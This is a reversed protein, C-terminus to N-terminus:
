PAGGSEAAPPPPYVCRFGIDNFWHKPNAAARREPDALDLTKAVWSAGRVVKRTSRENGALRGVELYATAPPLGDVPGTPDTTLPGQALAANRDRDYWDAVWERVNGGLHLVGHERAESKIAVPVPGAELPRRVLPTNRCSDDYVWCGTRPFRATIEWEAETPLRGGDWRCYAAADHWTVFRVPLRDGGDPYGRRWPGRPSYGAESVFRGYRGNDVEMRGIAFRGVRVQVVPREDHRGRPDGMEYAGAAIVAVAGEDGDAAGATAVVGLLSVPVLWRPGRASM